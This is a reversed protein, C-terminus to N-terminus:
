EEEEDEDKKGRSAVVSWATGVILAGIGALLSGGPLWDPISRFTITGGGYDFTPLNPQSYLALLFAGIVALVVGIQQLFNFKM